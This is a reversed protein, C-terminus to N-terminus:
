TSKRAERQEGARQERGRRDDGSRCGADLRTRRGFDRGVSQMADVAPREIPGPGLGTDIQGAVRLDQQSRALHAEAFHLVGAGAAIRRVERDIVLLPLPELLRNALREDVSSPLLPRKM